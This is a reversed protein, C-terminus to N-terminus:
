DLAIFRMGNTHRPLEIDYNFVLASEPDFPIEGVAPMSLIKDGHVARLLSEVEDPDVTDPEFGMLGLIIATDTGHGKGTFALSGYLTVQVRCLQAAIAEVQRSFEFAATM